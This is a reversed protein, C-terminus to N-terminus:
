GTSARVIQAVRIADQGERAEDAFLIKVNPRAYDIPQDGAGSNFDPVNTQARAYRTHIQERPLLEVTARGDTQTPIALYVDLVQTQANFVADFSRPQVADGTNDGGKLPTGDPLVVEFRNIKLQ